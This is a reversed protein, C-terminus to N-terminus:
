FSIRGGLQIIRSYNIQSTVNGLTQTSGSTVTPTGTAGTNTLVLTTAPNGFQPTNFANLAEARFQVNVKETVKFMKNISIDSNNSGPGQCPLMRPANGYTYPAAASFASVNLYAPGTGVSSVGLRGQPSGSKCALHADGVLNPRQYSGGVGTTGYATNQNTQQVSLPVGNQATWEDNIQWGGVLADLYWPAGGLFRQGKGFPLNYSVAATFRNPVNNLARSYEARPNYIDQPGYTSYVQSGASWLNDWNSSWTYTSLVTLGKSMRKQVKIAMANYRSYGNSVSMTVNQFQPYPLLSQGLSITKNAVQGTTAYGGLSTAYYPNTVNTATSNLSVGAQRYYTLVSTPIQNINQTNAVNMAHAGSYTLKVNVGWPLDRQIDFSYQQVLPYKRNMDIVTSLASGAGTYYGLSNGSPAIFGNPYMLSMPNSLASNAGVAVTGNPTNPAYSTAQSYGQAFFTLAVPAYFVGFGAHVVTKPDYQYAVGIRPSWKLKQQQCCNVSAGNQGAFVLGGRATVTGNAGPYQYTLNRDFGVAFRNNQERQGQEYELRVGLNMTLKQNLRFDDQAYLAHYGALQNFSGSNLTYGGASPLGMLIDAFSIVSTASTSGPYQDSYQGNFTFSPTSNPNSKFAMYRYVYGVKLNHRSITKSLGIVLNKSSQEQVTGNSGGISRGNTVNNITVTPFTVSQLQSTFNSPLNLGGSGVNYGNSYQFSASYYRNFGYGVTLLTTPNLTFVNNLATADNYRLLKTANEAVAGGLLFGSPEQTALHVYSVSSTWWPFFTHTLKGSYMDSRTKFTNLQNYNYGGGSTNPLPFANLIAKGTPSIYSAPIINGAITATRIVNGKTDTSYTSSPATPDYLKVGQWSSGNIGGAQLSASFDGNREAATPVRTVASSSPYFQAQRYGEETVYFFTNDLWKLKKSIIPFLPGGIAGAYLYTTTDPTASKNPNYWVNSAWPTQRTEGYLAGHYQTSGSQLSTNFVAGGTRGVEADYANAQVKADSVAEPSPIFTVGGDSRSIPIGDVVYNNAGIPAGAVSVQSLGTQDEARVYRPDGTMTVNSDLKEFIFPNRGLNPLDQIQQKDFLQGGSASATDLLPESATVEVTDSAAGVDLVADVTATAALAITANTMTFTKFGAGTVSITYDGPDLAGFQYIGASNSTAKRVLKTAKNTLTISADKVKAGSTDRVEGRLAGTNMQAFASSTVAFVVPALALSRSFRSYQSM